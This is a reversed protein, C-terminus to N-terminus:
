ARVAVDDELVTAGPLLSQLACNARAEHGQDLGRHINDMKRGGVRGQPISDTFIWYIPNQNMRM